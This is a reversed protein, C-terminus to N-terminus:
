QIGMGSTRFAFPFSNDIIPHSHSGFSDSQYAGIKRDHCDPDAQSCDLNPEDITYFSNLGRIFKGRLDPSAAIHNQPDPQTPGVRTLKELTSETILRGDCPVYSSKTNDIAPNEGISACLQDYNLVSSIITGLIQNVNPM